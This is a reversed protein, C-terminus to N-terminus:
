YCDRGCRDGAEAIRRRISEVREAVEAAVSM